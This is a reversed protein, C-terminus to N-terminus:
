GAYASALVLTRPVAPHRYSLELALAGGFSLGAVHPRALGLGAIFGALCDAYGAM